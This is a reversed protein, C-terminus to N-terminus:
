EAAASQPLLFNGACVKVLDFRPAAKGAEVDQVAQRYLRRFMAVGRDSTALHEESHWTVAGQGVQAEYDGPFRQHGEEDLEFWTKGGYMPNRNSRPPTDKAAAYVTFIRTMTDDIPLAWAVNNALGMTRVFPDAVIRINPLVLETVRRFTQGDPLKRIQ